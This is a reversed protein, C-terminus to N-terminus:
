FQCSITTNMKKNSCSEKIGIFRGEANFLNDTSCENYKYGAVKIYEIYVDPGVRESTLMFTVINADSMLVKTEKEFETRVKGTASKKEKVNTQVVVCDTYAIANNTILFVVILRLLFNNM